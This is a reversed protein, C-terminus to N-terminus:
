SQLFAARIDVSALKFNKNAAVAMLMKFSDKSVNHSDSQPKVTEHFGCFVVRAKTNKKQGDHKEKATVVWRSGLTDQGKDEVEKFIDYNLLNEVETEKTRKSRQGEM